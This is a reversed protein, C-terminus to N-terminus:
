SKLFSQKVSLEKIEETTSPVTRDIDTNTPTVPQSLVLFGFLSVGTGLTLLGLLSKVLKGLAQESLNIDIKSSFCVSPKPESNQSTSNSQISSIFSRM